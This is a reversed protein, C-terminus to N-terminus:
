LYSCSKSKELCKEYIIQLPKIISKGCIKLMHIRTMDHGPAKNPDLSQVVKEIGKETFTTNSLSEDTKPHLFSPIESGNDIISCQNAFFSNFLEAKEKSNTAFRNEYFIPPVCPMKKNNHFSKLVSRYTKPSTSPKM